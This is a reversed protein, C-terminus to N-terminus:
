DEKRLRELEKEIRELEEKKDLDWVEKAKKFKEEVEKDPHRKLREEIEKFGKNEGQMIRKHELLDRIMEERNVACDINIELFMDDSDGGTKYNADSYQQFGFDFAKLMLIPSIEAGFSAALKKDKGYGLCRFNIPKLDYKIMDYFIYNLVHHRVSNSNELKGSLTMNRGKKLDEDDPYIRYKLTKIIKM